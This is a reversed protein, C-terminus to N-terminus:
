PTLSFSFDAATSGDLMFELSETELEAVAGGFNDTNTLFFGRSTRSPSGNDHQVEVVVVESVSSKTIRDFFANDLQTWSEISLTADQLGVNRSRWGTSTFDTDELLERNLNLTFQNAGAVASLPLYTIDGTIPGAFTSAFTVIGFLYDVNSVSGAPIASNSSRFSPTVTRDWIRRSTSSIRYTNALTSHTSFANGTSATPTGTKNISIQYGPVSM